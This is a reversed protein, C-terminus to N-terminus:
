MIYLRLAADSYPLTTLAGATLVIMAAVGLAKKAVLEWDRKARKSPAREWAMWLRVEASDLNLYDAILEASNDDFTVGSEWNAVSQKSVGLVKAIRYNTPSFGERELKARVEVLLEKTTKM